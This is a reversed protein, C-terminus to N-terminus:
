PRDRKPDRNIFHFHIELAKKDIIYFPAKPERLIEVRKFM